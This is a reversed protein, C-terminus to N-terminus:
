AKTQNKLWAHNIKSKVTRRDLQVRRATEEYTGAEAYVLSIYKELLEDASLQSQGLTEYFLKQNSLSRDSPIPRYDRRLLLNRICQELERFNGPWRYSHGLNKEIWELSERSVPEVDEPGVLNSLIYRVFVELEDLKGGFQESLSPTHVIDACLRYYLDRRFNGEEIEEALNRNTAAIVKGGFFRSQSEGLVQFKRTQLVRLLKIQISEDVEGIEDLFVTASAEPRDFYGRRDAFAGTFSGKKHGFLESEILTPSLAALHIPQFQRYFNEKFSYEQPDFPIFRSLGIANAVLEKGTGSEGQILVPIDHMHKFLGRRYRRLDYSFTSEWIRARLQAAANSSGLVQTYIYHFARRSQFFLAFLFEASEIRASKPRLADFYRHLDKEFATFLTRLPVPTQSEECDFILHKFANVHRYYLVYLALDIYLQEEDPTATVGAALRDQAASLTKIALIGIREINAREGELEINLSWAVQDRVFHERLITQEQTMRESSFPNTFGLGGIAKASAKESSSFLVLATYLFHVSLM